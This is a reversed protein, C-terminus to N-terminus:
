EQSLPDSAHQEGVAGAMYLSGLAYEELLEGIGEIADVRQIRTSADPGFSTTFVHEPEFQSMLVPSHTAVIVQRNWPPSSAEKIADALAALPGPHLSVEPEDLLVLSTGGQPVSFLSTLHALMQLHGDSVGSAKIPKQRRSDVFSCYVSNPGTNEIDLGKFGPFSKRMYWMIKDYRADFERKIILNALVSWLNDCRSQLRVEHGRESGYRRLQPFLAYRAQYLTAFRLIGNSERAEPSSDQFTRLALQDPEQLTRTTGELASYITIKDSGVSREFLLSETGTQLLREGVFPEIRGSSFGVSLAYISSEGHIELTIRADEPAKDWLLGIGHSRSESAASVGNIACDRVFWLTDLFTTKGAGNPGFLVTHSPFQIDVDALCRFNKIRIRRLSM